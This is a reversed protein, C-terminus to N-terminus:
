DIPLNKRIREILLENQKKDPLKDWNDPKWGGSSSSALATTLTKGARSSQAADATKGAAPSAQSADTAKGDVIAAGKRKTLHTEVLADDLWELQEEAGARLRAETAELLEADTFAIGRSEPSEQALQFTHMYEAIRREGPLKSLIPLTTKAADIADELQRKATLYQREAAVRQDRQELEQRLQRNAAEAKKAAEMAQAIKEDPTGSKIIREGIDTAKVGRRELFALPDALEKEWEQIRAEAAQRAQEAAHTRAELNAIRASEQERARRQAVVERTRTSLAAKRDALTPEPSPAASDAGPIAAGSSPTAGPVAGPAPKAAGDAGNSVIEGAAM